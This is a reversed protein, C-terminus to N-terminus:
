RDRVIRADPGLRARPVVIERVIRVEGGEGDIFVTGTDDALYFRGGEHIMSWYEGPTDGYGSGDCITRCAFAEAFRAALEFMVRMVLPEEQPGPFVNVGVLTPFESPNEQVDVVIDPWADLEAVDDFFGVTAAPFLRALAASVEDPTAGISLGLWLGTM